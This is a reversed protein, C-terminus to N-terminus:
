PNVYGGCETCYKSVLGEGQDAVFFYETDENEECNCEKGWQPLKRILSLVRNFGNVYERWPEKMETKM